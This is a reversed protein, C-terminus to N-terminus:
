RLPLRSVGPTVTAEVVAAVSLLAIGAVLLVLVDTWHGEPLSAGTLRARLWPLSGFGAAALVLTAPVELVGHPVIRLAVHVWDMSHVAAGTLYGAVFGNLFLAILTSLGFTVIGAVLPSAARLNHALIQLAAPNGNEARQPPLALQTMALGLGWGLLYTIASALLLARVWPRGFTRAVLNLVPRLAPAVM